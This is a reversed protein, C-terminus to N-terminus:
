PLEQQDARHHDAPHHDAPGRDALRRDALARDVLAGAHGPSPALLAALQERESVGALDDVLVDLLDRRDDHARRVAGAVRDHAAARGLRDVLAAAVRHSGAAPDLHARMAVPDVVLDALAVRAWAAASGTTSLLDSVTPWEAHWSGAARQHEQAAASLLTAVLGPARTTAARVSVAAVPNAKHPMASSGGTAAERVEDIGSQQLLVLDLGVKGLVACASGLAGALELLPVRTTHWALLPAALGLRQALVAPLALAAAEDDVGGLTGVPGFLEVPMAAGVTQVRRAAADLASAWGACVLGFTTPTAARGLTRGTMLTDRHLAALEAAADATARLDPLLVRLARRTVLSCATDLVDQSTAGVHLASRAGEPLRREIERVLPVVPNGSSAAARGLEDADFAGAVACIQAVQQAAVSDALGVDACALALASEVDLMAQLWAHDDVQPAVGGRALVGGFLGPGAESGSSSPRM